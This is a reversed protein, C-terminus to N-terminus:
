ASYWSRPFNALFNQAIRKYGASDPHLGDPMTEAEAANFLKLGDLYFINPDYISRRAVIEHLYDRIGRLTLEGIWTHPSFPQGSV